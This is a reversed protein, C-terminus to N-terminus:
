TQTLTKMAVYFNIIWSKLSMIDSSFLAEREWGQCRQFKKWWILWRMAVTWGNSCTIRMKLKYPLTHTREQFYLILEFQNNIEPNPQNLKSLGHWHVTLLRAYNYHDVSCINLQRKWTVNKIASFSFKQYNQCNLSLPFSFCTIQLLLEHPTQTRSLQLGVVMWYGFVSWTIGIHLLGFILVLKNKYRTIAYLLEDLTVVIEIWYTPLQNCIICNIKNTSFLDSIPPFTKFIILQGLWVKVLSEPTNELHSM